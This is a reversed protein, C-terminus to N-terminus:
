ESRTKGVDDICEPRGWNNDRRNRKKWEKVEGSKSRLSSKGHGRQGITQDRGEDIQRGVSGQDSLSGTKNRGKRKRELV